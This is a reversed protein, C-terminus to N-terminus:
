GLVGRADGEGADVGFVEEQDEGGGERVQQVLLVGGVLDRKVAPQDDKLMERFGGEGHAPAFLFVGAELEVALAEFDEALPIGAPRWGGRRRAFCGFRGAACGIGM